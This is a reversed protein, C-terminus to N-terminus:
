KGRSFYNTRMRPKGDVSTSSATEIMTKGNPAVTYVRTSAPHGDKGLGLVLVNPAPSIAAGIDAEFTSGQAPEPTGDLSFSGGTNLATGAADVIDVQMALKGDDTSRFTITVSRPREEPPIPLRAVDVSWRGLLPSSWAKTISPASPVPASQLACAVLLLIQLAKM